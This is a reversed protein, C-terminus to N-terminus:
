HKLSQPGMAWLVQQPELVSGTNWGSGGVTARGGWPDAAPNESMEEATIAEFYGDTLDIDGNTAITYARTGSKHERYTLSLDPVGYGMKEWAIYFSRPNVYAFGTGDGTAMNPRDNVKILNIRGEAILRDAMDSLEQAYGDAEGSEGPWPRLGLAASVLWETTRRFSESSVAQREEATWSKFGKPDLGLSAPIADRISPQIFAAVAKFAFDKLDALDAPVTLHDCDWAIARLKRMAEPSFLGGATYYAAAVAADADLQTTAIVINGTYHCYGVPDDEPWVSRMEDIQVKAGDKRHHDFHVDWNNPIWGPVTGDLMVIKHDGAFAQLAALETGVFFRFSTM